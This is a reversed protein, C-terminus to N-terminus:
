QIKRSNDYNKNEKNDIGSEYRFKTNDSIKCIRCMAKFINNHGNSIGMKTDCYYHIYEHIIVERVIDENYRGDLLSKAFSFKIPEIRNKNKKYFFAGMRKTARSSIEIPISCPYRCLIAIEDVVKRIDEEGWVKYM